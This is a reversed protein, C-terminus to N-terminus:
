PTTSNEMGFVRNRLGKENHETEVKVGKDLVIRRKPIVGISKLNLSKKENKM